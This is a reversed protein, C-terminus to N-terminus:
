KRIKPQALMNLRSLTMGTRKKQPSTKQPSPTRSFGGFRKIPSSKAAALRPAVVAHGEAPPEKRVKKNAHKQEEEEEDWSPRHRKKNSMGHPIGLTLSPDKNEKNPSKSRPVPFSGPMCAPPAMSERVQRISAQGAAAGFGNPSNGDFRITHDSRFTFTGPVSQPPPEPKDEETEMNVDQCYASLDPYLVEGKPDKDPTARNSPPQNGLELKSVVLSRSLSNKIPSPSNQVMDVQKTDPTFDVHRGFKRGPTTVPIPPLEKDTSKQHAPTKPISSTFHPINSKFRSGGMPKKLISKIKGFRGPTQTQVAAPAGSELNLNNTTASKMLGFGTKSPSKVDVSGGLNVKSPSKLLSGTEPKTPSKAPSTALAQSTALRALSSKTPTMLSGLTQSRPIGSRVSDNGSSKPRPIASDDRAVPRLTTADDELRQRVRKSAAQPEESSKETAKETAKEASKTVPRPTSKKSRASDPEDLNAKSQSRKVGAKMPTVRGPAARFASPHGEISDMKKFEAMHAASFRSAKGKAKAIKRGAAEEQDKERAAAMDAKIKAAEERLGQMIKQAEPGLSLDGGPREHRFTFATSPAPTKSPTTHVVGPMENSHRKTYDIDSFGLKLGSSPAAMSPHVKSPHMESMPLKVPTAASPTTPHHAPSSSMVTALKQKPQQDEPAEDHEALSELQPAPSAQTRKSASAIRKSRRRPPSM